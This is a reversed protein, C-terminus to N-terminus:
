EGDIRKEAKRRKWARKAPYWVFAVLALIIILVLAVFTGIATLGAGPGIYAEVSLPIFMIVAAAVLWKTANLNGM